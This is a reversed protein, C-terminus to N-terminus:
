HCVPTQKHLRIHSKRKLFSTQLTQCTLSHLVIYACLLKRHQCLLLLMGTEGVSEIGREGRGRRERGAGGRERGARGETRCCIDLKNDFMTLIYQRKM